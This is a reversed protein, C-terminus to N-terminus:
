AGDIALVSLEGSRLLDVLLTLMQRPVDDDPMKKQSFLPEASM